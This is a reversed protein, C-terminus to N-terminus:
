FDLDDRDHLWDTVILLTMMIALTKLAPVILEEM